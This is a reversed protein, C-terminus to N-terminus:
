DEEKVVRLIFKDITKDLDEQDKFNNFATGMSGQYILGDKVLIVDIRGRDKFIRADTFIGKALFDKAIKFGDTKFKAM